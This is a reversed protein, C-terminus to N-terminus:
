EDYTSPAERPGDPSLDVWQPPASERAIAANLFRSDGTVERYAFDLPVFERCEASCPFKFELMRLPAHRKEYVDYELVIPHPSRGSLRYRTRVKEVRGGATHNWLEAFDDASVALRIISRSEGYGAKFTFEANGAPQNGDRARDGSALTQASRVRIEGEATSLTLYGQIVRLTEFPESLEDWTRVQDHFNVDDNLLFRRQFQKESM